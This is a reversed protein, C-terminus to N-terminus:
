KSKNQEKAIELCLLKDGGFVAAYFINHRAQPRSALDQAKQMGVWVYRLKPVYIFEVNSIICIM